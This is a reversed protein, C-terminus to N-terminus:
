LRGALSRQGHFKVPLLISHTAMEKELPDEWGLISGLDRTDGANDPPNKVVTCGPFGMWTTDTDKDCASKKKFVEKSEPRAIHEIRMKYKGSGTMCNAIEGLIHVYM